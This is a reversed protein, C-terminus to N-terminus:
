DLEFSREENLGPYSCSLIVTTIIKFNSLNRMECQDTQFSLNTLYFSEVPSDEPGDKVDGDESGEEWGAEEHESMDM